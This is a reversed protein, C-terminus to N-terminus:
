AGCGICSMIDVSTAEKFMVRSAIHESLTHNLYPGLYVERQSEKVWTKIYHQCDEHKNKANHICQPELFGYRSGYGISTSWDNMFMLWLQLISINLCKDGLIIESVYAHTIFFGDKVNAIGFKAGDWALEILKQYIEFLNKVLEGLLDITAVVNDMEASKVPIRLRKQSDEDFIPKVLHTPWGVFTGIARVVDDAYPVNHITALTDYVKGLAVLQTSQEAVVYLGM